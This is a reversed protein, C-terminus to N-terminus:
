VLGPPGVTCVEHDHVAYREPPEHEIRDRPLEAEIDRRFCERENERMGRFPDHVKVETGIYPLFRPPDAAFPDGQLGRKRVAGHDHLIFVPIPRAQHPFPGDLDLSSLGTTGRVRGSGPHSSTM